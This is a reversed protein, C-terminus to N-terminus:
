REFYLYVRVRVLLAHLSSASSEVPVRCGKHVRTAVPLVVSEPRSCKSHLHPLVLVVTCISLHLTVRVGM